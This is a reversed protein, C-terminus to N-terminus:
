LSNELHNLYDSLQHFSDPLMDSNHQIDSVLQLSLEFLKRAIHQGDELRNLLSASFDVMVFANTLVGATLYIKQKVDEKQAQYFSAKAASLSAKLEQIILKKM